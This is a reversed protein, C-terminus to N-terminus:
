HSPKGKNVGATEKPPLKGILDISLPPGHPNKACGGKEEEGLQITSGKKANISRELAFQLLPSEGWGLSIEKQWYTQSGPVRTVGKLGNERGHAQRSLPTRDEEGAVLSKSSLTKEGAM